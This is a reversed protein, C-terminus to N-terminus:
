KRKGSYLFSFAMIHGKIAAIAGTNRRQRWFIGLEQNRNTSQHITIALLMVLDSKRDGLLRVSALAGLFSVALGALFEPNAFSNTIITKSTSQRSSEATIFVIITKYAM